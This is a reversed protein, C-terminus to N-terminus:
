RKLFPMFVDKVENKLFHNIVPSTAGSHFALVADEIEKDALTARTHQRLHEAWSSVLFSERFHRPDALDHFLSWRYAGDRLRIRRLKTIAARFAAHDEVKVEYDISILVPGDESRPEVILQHEQWHNSPSLDQEVVQNLPFWKILLVGALIGLSAIRLALTANLHVTLQGWVLAGIALSGQVVLLQMASSRARVWNPFASQGAFSLTNMNAMWAGGAVFMLVGLLWPSHVFSFGGIALASTVLAVGLFKDLSLRQRLKPIIVFAALIGGIGYAGVQLGFELATAGRARLVLPLLAMPAIGCFAFAGHRILVSQVSTSHRTYRFAAAIAGIIEESNESVPQPPRKWLYLAVLLGIFTLANLLFVSAAGAAALLLGGIVPGLARSINVGVGGLSIAAALQKREVVEPILAQWSPVTVANGLGLLFTVGLLIGISLHGTFALLGLMTAVLLCLAQAWFVLRRRDVIDSLAGAPLAFLFIPLSSMSQMLSVLLPNATLTAMTWVAATDHMTSGIGSFVNATWLRRYTPNRLPGTMEIQSEPSKSM